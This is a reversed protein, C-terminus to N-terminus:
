NNNGNGNNKGCTIVIRVYYKNNLWQKKRQKCLTIMTNNVDTFIITTQHM